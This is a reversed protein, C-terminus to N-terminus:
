GQINYKKLFKKARSKFAPTERDYNEEILLKIEPIIEPYTVCLKQLVSLSFAKVAPKEGPVSIYKFCTDMVRGHQKEPIDIDELLRMTNRKVADHIDPKDLNAILRSFNKKILPPHAIVVYSLPWAAHQVLRYENSLFLSFLADFRQQNTGIWKVIKDCNTRSHEKLLQERLNM